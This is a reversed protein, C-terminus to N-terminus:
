QGDSDEKPRQFLEEKTTASGREGDVKRIIADTLLSLASWPERYMGPAGWEVAPLAPGASGEEAAIAEWTGFDELLYATLHFTRDKYTITLERDQAVTTLEVDNSMTASGALKAIGAM